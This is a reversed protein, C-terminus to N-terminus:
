PIEIGDDDGEPLPEDKTKGKRKPSKKAPEAAKKPKLDFEVQRETMRGAAIKIASFTQEKDGRHVILTYSGPALFAEKGAKIKLAADAAGDAVTHSATRAAGTAGAADAVANALTPKREVRAGAPVRSRVREM